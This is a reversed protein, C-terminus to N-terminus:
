ECGAASLGCAPKSKWCVSSFRPISGTSSWWESRGELWQEKVRAWESLAALFTEYEHAIRQRLQEIHSHGAAHHQALKEQARTFQMALLARQDPVCADAEPTEHHRRVVLRWDAV